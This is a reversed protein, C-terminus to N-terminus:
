IKKELNTNKRRSENRKSVQENEATSTCQNKNGSFYCSAQANYHDDTTKSRGITTNGSHQWTHWRQLKQQQQQQEHVSNRSCKHIHHNHTHFQARKKRPKKEVKHFVLAFFLRKKQRTVVTRRPHRCLFQAPKEFSTIIWSKFKSCHTLLKLGIKLFSKQGPAHISTYLSLILCTSYFTALEPKRNKM